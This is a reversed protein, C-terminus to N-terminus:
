LIENLFGLRLDNYNTFMSKYISKGTSNSGIWLSWVIMGLSLVLPGAFNSCRSGLQTSIKVGLTVMTHTLYQFWVSIIRTPLIATWYPLKSSFFSNEKQM